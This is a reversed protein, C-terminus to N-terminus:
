HACAHCAKPSCAGCYWIGCSGCRAAVGSGCGACTGRAASVTDLSIRGAELAAVRLTLQQVLVTLHAVTKRLAVVEASGAFAAEEATEPDPEHSKPAGPRVLFRFRLDELSEVEAVDLQVALRDFHYERAIDAPTKGADNRITADDTACLIIQCMDWDNQRAAIHLPMNGSASVALGNARGNIRDAPGPNAIKAGERDYEPPSFGQLLLLAAAHRRNTAAIHMATTGRGPIKPLGPDDVPIDINEQIYEFKLLLELCKHSATITAYHLCTWGNVRLSLNPKKVTLMYELLEPRECLIAYILPTPSRITPFAPSNSPCIVSVDKNVCIPRNLDNFGLCCRKLGQLSGSQIAETVRQEFSVPDSM